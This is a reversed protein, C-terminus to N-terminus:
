WREAIPASSTKLYNALSASLEDLAKNTNQCVKILQDASSEEVSVPPPPPPCAPPPPRLRDLIGRAAMAAEDESSEPACDFDSSEGADTEEEDDAENDYEEYVVKRSTLPARRSPRFYQTAFWVILWGALFTFCVQLCDQVMVVM